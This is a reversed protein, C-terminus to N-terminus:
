HEIIYYILAKLTSDRLEAQEVSTLPVEVDEVVDVSTQGVPLFQGVVLERVAFRWLVDVSKLRKTPAAAEAGEQVKKKVETKQKQLYRHLSCILNPGSM